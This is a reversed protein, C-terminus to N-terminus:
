ISLWTVLPSLSLVLGVWAIKSNDQHIAYIGFGVGPLGPLLEFVIYPWLGLHMVVWWHLWATAVGCILAVVSSFSWGLNRLM